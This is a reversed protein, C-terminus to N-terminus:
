TPGTMCPAFDRKPAGCTVTVSIYLHFPHRLTMQSMGRKVYLEGDNRASLGM